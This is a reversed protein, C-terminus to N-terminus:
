TAQFVINLEEEFNRYEGQHSANKRNFKSSKIKIVRPNVRPRKPRDINSQGILDILYNLTFPLQKQKVISIIPVADIILQLVDFFSLLRPESLHVEGAQYMLQRICNYTILIAFLEQEVLEATKSRFVTPTQGKLTACQRTKIEGFALEIDWRKHYHIVLASASITEDLINTILKATRFGKLQYSIIRVKIKKTIQPLRRGSVSKPNKFKKQIIAIRSGDKLKKISKVKVTSDLKMLFEQHSNKFYELLEFSHLGADLLFLLNKEKFKELIQAMLAREGTGKGKFPGYAIDLLCRLQLSLLAVARLQPFAASGQVSSPKGFRKQNSQTDPLTATVGDFIVSNRGYFDPILVNHQQNFKDFILRFVPIGLYQRAKTITGDKIIKKPLTLSLWRIASIMWNVVKHYSLEHRM